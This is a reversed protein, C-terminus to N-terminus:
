KVSISYKVSEKAAPINATPTATAATQRIQFTTLILTFHLFVAEPARFRGTISQLSTLFRSFSHRFRMDTLISHYLRKTLLIICQLRFPSPYYTQNTRFSFSVPLSAPLISLSFSNPRCDLVIGYGEGLPLEANGTKVRGQGTFTYLLLFSDHSQREVCYGKEGHFHGAEMVYFPLTQAMPSPTATIWISEDTIKEDYKGM